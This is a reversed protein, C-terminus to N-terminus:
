LQITRCCYTVQQPVYLSSDVLVLRADRSWVGGLFLSALIELAEARNM